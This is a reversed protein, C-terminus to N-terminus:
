LNASGKRSLSGVGAGGDSGRHSGGQGRMLMVHASPLQPSGEAASAAGAGAATFGGSPSGPGAPSGLSQAMGVQSSSSSTGPRSWMSGGLGAPAAALARLMERHSSGPTRPVEQGQQQHQQAPTLPQQGGPQSSTSPRLRAAGSSGSRPAPDLCSRYDLLSGSAGPHQQHYGRIMGSSGGSNSAEALLSGEKNRQQAPQQPRQLRQPSNTDGGAANLSKSASVATASLAPLLGGAFTGDGLPAAPQPAGPARRCAPSGPADPGFATLGAGSIRRAVQPRGPSPLGSRAASVDRGACPGAAPSPQVGVAEPGGNVHVSLGAPKRRTQGQDSVRGTLPPEPVVAAGTGLFMTPYPRPSNSNPLSGPRAQHGPSHSQQRDPDGNAGARQAWPESAERAPLIGLRAALAATPQDHLSGHDGSSPTAM